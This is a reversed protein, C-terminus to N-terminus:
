FLSHKPRLLLEPRDSESEDSRRHGQSRQRMAQRRLKIEERAKRQEVNIEAGRKRSVGGVPPQVPAAPPAELPEPAEVSDPPEM